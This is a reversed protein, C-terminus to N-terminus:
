DRPSPSTYLLCLDLHRHQEVTNESVESNSKPSETEDICSEPQLLEELKEVDLRYQWTKDQGNGPNHRRVLLGKEELIAIAARIKHLSHEQMLDEYIQKLPTYIWDTRQNSLKWQRWHKFYEILKAACHNNTIDLYVRRLIVLVSPAKNM